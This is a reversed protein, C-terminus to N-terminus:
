SSSLFTVLNPQIISFFCLLCYHLIQIEHTIHVREKGLSTRAARWDSCQIGDLQYGLCLFTFMKTTTKTLWRNLVIPIGNNTLMRLIRTTHRNFKPYGLTNCNQGVFRVGPPDKFSKTELMSPDRRKVCSPDQLFDYRKRHSLLLIVAFQLAGASSRACFM